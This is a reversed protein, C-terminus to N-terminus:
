QDDKRRDRWIEENGTGTVVPDVQEETQASPAITLLVSQTLEQPRTTAAAIGAEEQDSLLQVGQEPGIAPGCVATSSIACGNFRYDNPVSTLGVVNFGIQRSAQSGGVITGDGAGFSGFLDIVTPPDVTLVVGASPNGNTLYLGSFSTASGSTNQQVVAGGASVDLRGAVVFMKGIESGTAKVGNPQNLAIDIASAALPQVLAIFRASGILVGGGANLSLQDFARVGTFRTDTVHTAAGLSGSILITSPTWGAAGGVSLRGGSVTPAVAGSVSVTNAPGAYLNVVPTASANVALDGVDLDGRATGTTSGAYLNLATPAQIRGFDSGSVWLGTTPASGGVTLPGSASEISVTPASLSAGIDLTGVLLRASQGASASTFSLAGPTSVQLVGGANLSTAALSSGALTLDGTAATVAQLSVPGPAQINVLAVGTLPGTATVGGSQAELDVRGGSGAQGLTISPALLQVAGGATVAGLTLPNSVNFRVAGAAQIVSATDGSVVGGPTTGTFSVLM